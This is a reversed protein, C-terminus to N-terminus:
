IPRPRRRKPSILTAVALFMAGVLSIAAGLPLDLAYSALFGAGAAAAGMGGAIALIAKMDYALQAAAAAPILLLSYILIGGVLRLSAAVLSGVVFLVAWTYPRTPIGAEEALRRELLISFVERRFLLLFVGSGGLVAALIAVDKWGAGLISGWLLSLAPSSFAPGPVLSLFVFGLAMTVPFVVGLVVEAPLRTTETLPGLIAALFLSFVLSVPFPSVGLVLGLAAGAFAAHAMAFGVAALQLRVVVAGWLGCLWGVLLAAVLSPLLIDWM